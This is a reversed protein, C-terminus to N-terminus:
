PSVDHFACRGTKGRKPFDAALGEPAKEIKPRKWGDKEIYDIAIINPIL